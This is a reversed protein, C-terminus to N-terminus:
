LSLDKGLVQAQVKPRTWRNLVHLINLFINLSKLSFLPLKPSPAIVAHSFRLMLMGSPVARRGRGRWRRTGAVVAMAYFFAQNALQSAQYDHLPAAQMGSGESVNRQETVPRYREHHEADPMGHPSSCKNIQAVPSTAHIEYQHEAATGLFASPRLPPLQGIMPAAALTGLYSSRRSSSSRCSTHM